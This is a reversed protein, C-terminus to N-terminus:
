WVKGHSGLIGVFRHDDDDDDFGDDDGFGGVGVYRVPSAVVGVSRVPTAVVSVTHVPRHHEVVGVAHVVPREWPSPAALSVSLQMLVLTAAMLLFRNSVM